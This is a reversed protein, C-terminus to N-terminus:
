AQKLTRVNVTRAVQDQTHNREPVTPGTTGLARGAGPFSRGSLTGGTDFSGHAVVQSLGVQSLFVQGDQFLAGAEACAVATSAHVVAAIALLALGCQQSRESVGSWELFRAQGVIAGFSLLDSVLLIVSLAGYGELLKVCIWHETPQSDPWCCCKLAQLTSYGVVLAVAEALGSSWTFVSSIALTLCVHATFARRLRRARVVRKANGLSWDKLLVAFSAIKHAWGNSHQIMFMVSVGAITPISLRGLLGWALPYGMIIGALHGTFSARPVIVQTVVLSAFPGFNVPLGSLASGFIPLRWTKFCRSANGFPCYEDMAVAAYTMYAFLVGSFGLAKREPESSAGNRKVLALKILMDVMETTVVLALTLCLFRFTGLRQEIGRLNWTSLTNFFIHTPEYHSFSATFIRWYEREEWFLTYSIAVANPSVGYTRLYYAVALNIGILIATGPFSPTDFLRSPDSKDPMGTAPMFRASSPQIVEPDHDPAVKTGLVAVQPPSEVGATMNSLPKGAVWGTPPPTNQLYSTAEDSNRYSVGNPGSLYWLSSRKKENKISRIAHRPTSASSSYDPGRSILDYVNPVRWGGAPVEARIYWKLAPEWLYYGNTGLDGAGSVVVGRWVRSFYAWASLAILTAGTIAAVRPSRTISSSAMRKKRITRATGVSVQQTKIASSSDGHVVVKQVRGSARQVKSEEM